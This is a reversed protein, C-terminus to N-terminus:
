CVTNVSVPAHALFFHFNSVPKDVNYATVALFLMGCSRFDMAAQKVRGATGYSVPIPQAEVDFLWM